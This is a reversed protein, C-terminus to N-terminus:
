HSFIMRAWTMYNLRIPFSQKLRHGRILVIVTQFKRMKFSLAIIIKEEETTINKYTQNKKESDHCYPFMVISKEGKVMRGQYLFM